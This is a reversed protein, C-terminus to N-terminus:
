SSAPKAGAKEKECPYLYLTQAPAGEPRWVLGLRGAIPASLVLYDPGDARGCVEDVRRPEIACGPGAMLCNDLAARLGSSARKREAYAMATRRSFVIGAGQDVSFWSPAGLVLWAPGGSERWFVQAGPPLAARFPNMRASEGEVFERWPTRADWAVIALVLGAISLAVGARLLHGTAALWLIIALPALGGVGFGAQAYDTWQPAQAAGYLLPMRSQVEFLLGVSAACAACLAVARLLVPGIWAPRDLEIWHLLVGAAALVFAAPQEARGFCCSAALCVAAARGANGRRWLALVIVPVQVIALLHMMWHARWLQLGAAAVSDLLDVALGSVAVGAAALAISIALLRQVNDHALRAGLGAVCLGWALRAWDALHWQSLFLHPSRELVAERWAPDFRVRAEPVLVLVALAAVSIIGVSLGARRWLLLAALGPAAVLPHLLAAALLLASAARLRSALLCALAGVVLPEALSRATAYAEAIRFTGVGGYYGSVVALLALSWWRAPGAVM